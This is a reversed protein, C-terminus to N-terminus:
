IESTKDLTYAVFFIEAETEDFEDILPIVGATATYKLTTAGLKLEHQTAVPEIGLLKRKKEKDEKPEEAAPKENEAM